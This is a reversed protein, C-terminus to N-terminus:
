TLISGGSAALWHPQTRVHTGILTPRLYLSYGRENPIWREDVRLLEKICELLQTKDFTQWRRPRVRPPPAAGAFRNAMRPLGRSM